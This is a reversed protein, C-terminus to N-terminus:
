RGDGSWGWGVFFRVVSLHDAADCRHGICARYGSGDFDRLGERRWGEWRRVRTSPRSSGDM